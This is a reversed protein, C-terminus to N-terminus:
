DSKKYYRGKRKIIKDRKLLVKLATYPYNSHMRIGAEAAARSADPPIMGVSGSQEVFNLIWSVRNVADGPESNQTVEPDDDVAALDLKPQETPDDTLYPALRKM